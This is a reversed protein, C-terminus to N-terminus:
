IGKKEKYNELTTLDLDYDLLIVSRFHHSDHTELLAELAIRLNEFAEVKKNIADDYLQYKLEDTKTHKTFITGDKAADDGTLM